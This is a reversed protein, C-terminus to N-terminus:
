PKAEQLDPVFLSPKKAKIADVVFERSNSALELFEIGCINRDGDLREKWLLRAKGELLYSAKDLFDIEFLVKEKEKPLVRETVLAAGGQGLEFMGGNDESNISKFSEAIKVRINEQVCVETWREEFPKFYMELHSRIDEFGFPKSFIASVGLGYAERATIDSQGTIFSIIPINKGLAFINKVLDVGNGNPMRVDTIVADVKHKKILNFADNGCSATFVTYGIREFRMKMITLLDLEDDVLLIQKNM